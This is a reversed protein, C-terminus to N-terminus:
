IQKSAALIKQLSAMLVDKRPATIGFTQEITRELDTAETILIRETVGNLHHIALENNRLAYRSMLMISVNSPM